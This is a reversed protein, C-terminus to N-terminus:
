FNSTRNPPWIHMMTGFKAFIPRVTGSIHGIKIKWSLPRGGDQIQIRRSAGLAGVHVSTSSRYTMHRTDAGGLSTGKLTENMSSGIKHYFGWFGSNQPRSYANELKVHLIQMSDFNSRRNCGFKACDYLGGFVRRPHDWCAYFFDLIASPRWRSFRFNAMDGSRKSRDERFKDRHRMSPRRVPHFNFNAVKLFWLHRVAAMKFFPFDARSCYRDIRLGTGTLLAM